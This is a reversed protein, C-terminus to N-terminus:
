QVLPGTSGALDVGELSANGALISIYQHVARHFVADALYDAIKTAVAEFPLVTGEIKRDLRIVHVGYPTRVPEATIQGAELAVLAEEFAPTTQGRTIQGLNGGAKGSPCASHKEAIAAFHQPNECLEVIVRKAAEIAAAYSEPDDRAAPFLIHAAEYIDPSRFRESNTEYFRRCEEETPDPVRIETELLQRVLAEEETERLGDESTVPIAKLGLRAARKLLLQRIALARVAAARAAAPSAAPHNQIERAIAAEGIETGDVLVAPPPAAAAKRDSIDFLRM